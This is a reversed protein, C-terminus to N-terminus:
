YTITVEWFGPEIITFLIECEIIGSKMKSYTLFRVKGEFPFIINDYGIERATDYYTGTSGDIVLRQIPRQGSMENLIFVVREGDGLRYFKYRDINRKIHVQYKIDRPNKPSEHGVFEGKKWFGNTTTDKSADYFKGSGERFGNLWTGEYINGTHWVYKGKGHPLGKRFSGEYYDVGTAKGNGHAFGKRCEGEYVDAIEPILVKCTLMPQLPSQMLLFWIVVFNLMM